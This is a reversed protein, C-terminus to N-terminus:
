EGKSRVHEFNKPIEPLVTRLALYQMAWTAAQTAIAFAAQWGPSMSSLSALSRPSFSRSSTDDFSESGKKSDLSTVGPTNDM